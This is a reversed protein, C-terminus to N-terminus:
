GRQMRCPLPRDGSGFCFVISKENKGGIIVTLQQFRKLSMIILLRIPNIKIFIDMDILFVAFFHRSSNTRPM